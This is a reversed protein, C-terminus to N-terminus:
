DEGDNDDDNDDNDDDDAEIEYEVAIDWRSGPAAASVYKVFRITSLLCYPLKLLSLVLLFHILPCLSIHTISSSHDNIHIPIIRM